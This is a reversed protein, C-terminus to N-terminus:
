IGAGGRTLNGIRASGTVEQSTKTIRTATVNWLYTLNEGPLLTSRIAKNQPVSEPKQENCIM